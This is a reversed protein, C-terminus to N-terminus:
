SVKTLIKDIKGDLHAFKNDIHSRLIDERASILVHLADIKADQKDSRQDQEINKSHQNRVSESHKGWMVAMALLSLVLSVGLGLYEM